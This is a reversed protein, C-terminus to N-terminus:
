EIESQMWIAPLREGDFDEGRGVDSVRLCFSVKQLLRVDDLHGIVGIDDFEKALSLPFLPEVDSHLEDMADREFLKDHLVAKREFASYLNNQLNGVRQVVEVGVADDM